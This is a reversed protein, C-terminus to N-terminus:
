KFRKTRLLNMTLLSLQQLVIFRLFDRIEVVVFLHITWLQFFLKFSQSLFLFGIAHFLICIWHHSLSLHIWSFCLFKHLLYLSLSLSLPSDFTPSSVTKSKATSEHSVSDFVSNGWGFNHLKSNFCHKWGREWVYVSNKHSKSSKSNQQKTKIIFNIENKEWELYTIKIIRWWMCFHFYFSSFFSISYYFVIVWIFLIILLFISSLLM